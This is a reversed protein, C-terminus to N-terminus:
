AVGDAGYANPYALTSNSTEPINLYDLVAPGFTSEVIKNLQEESLGGYTKIYSYQDLIDKIYAQSTNLPKISNEVQEVFDDNLVQYTRSDYLNKASVDLVIHHLCIFSFNFNIVGPNGSSTTLSLTAPYGIMINNMLALLCHCGNQSLKTGRLQEDWLQRFSQGWLYSYPEDWPYVITETNTIRIIPEERNAELLTGAFNYVKTKQDYWLISPAGFTELIQVREVRNEQMGTLFFKNTAAKIKGNSIDQVLLFAPQEIFSIGGVVYKNNRAENALAFFTNTQPVLRALKPDEFLRPSIVNASSNVNEQRLFDIMDIINESESQGLRQMIEDILAQYRSELQEYNM